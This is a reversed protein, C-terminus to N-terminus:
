QADTGGAGSNVVCIADREDHEGTFLARLELGDLEDGLSVIGSSIEPEVSEDSEERGLEHLTELDSIRRELGDVLVVDDNLRALQSTVARATDPDDWLGPKAAEVELEAIRARAAEVHLYRRAEDVRRRLDTLDETFDRMSVGSTRSVP